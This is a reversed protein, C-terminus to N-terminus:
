LGVRNADQVTAPLSSAVSQTLARQLLVGALLGVAVFAGGLRGEGLMAAVPGPCTGAVSWGAGFLISGVVHRARPKELDWRIPEGSVLARASAARLVRAGVAAVCIACGMLLFVDYEHLLLMSRIVAPDTLRAWAMVFGIGAGFCLGVLKDKV